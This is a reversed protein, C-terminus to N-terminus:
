VSSGAKARAWTVTHPRASIGSGVEWKGNKFSLGAMNGIHWPRAMCRISFFVAVNPGPAFNPWVSLIQGLQRNWSPKKSRSAHGRTRRPYGHSVGDSWIDRVSSLGQPSIRPSIIISRFFPRNQIFLHSLFIIPRSAEVLIYKRKERGKVVSSRRM